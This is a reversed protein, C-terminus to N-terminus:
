HEALAQQDPQEVIVLSEAPVPQARIALRVVLAQAVSRAASVQQASLM